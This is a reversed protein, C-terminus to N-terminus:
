TKMEEYAVENVFQTKFTFQAIIKWSSPNFRLNQNNRKSKALYLFSINFSVQYGITSTEKKSAVYEDSFTSKYGLVKKTQQINKLSTVLTSSTKRRPKFTNLIFTYIIFWWIECKGELKIEIYFWRRPKCNFKTSCKLYLHLKRKQLLSPSKNNQRYWRKINISQLHL